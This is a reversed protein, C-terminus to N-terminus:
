FLQLYYYLGPKYFHDYLLSHLLLLTTKVKLLRTNHGGKYCYNPFGIQQWRNGERHYSLGLSLVRAMWVSISWRSRVVKGYRAWSYHQKSPFFLVGLSFAVFSNVDKGWKWSKPECFSVERDHCSQFELLDGLCDGRQLNWTIGIIIFMSQFIPPLPLLYTFPTLRPFVHLQHGTLFVYFNHWSCSSRPLPQLLHVASLLPFVHSTISRSYM